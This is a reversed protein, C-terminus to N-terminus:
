RIERATIAIAHMGINEDQMGEIAQDKVGQIDSDDPFIYDAEVIATVRIKMNRKGRSM